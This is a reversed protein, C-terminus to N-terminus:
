RCEVNKFTLTFNFRTRGSALECPLGPVNGVVTNGSGSFTNINADIDMADDSGTFNIVNDSFDVKFIGSVNVADTGTGNIVNNFVSVNNVTQLRLAELDGSTITSNSITVDGSNVVYIGRRAGTVTMDSIRVDSVSTTVLISALGGTITFGTYNTNITSNIANVAANTQNLTGETGPLTFLATQGSTAGTFKLSAGGGAITQGVRANAQTSIDITGATGDLVVLSNEGAATIAAVAGGATNADITVIQNVTNGDYQVAESIVPKDVKGSVVDVDRIVFDTMRRELLSLRRKSSDNRKKGLAIRFFSDVPIKLRVTAFAHTGRVDDSQLEGGVTFRSGYGLFPLDRWNMEVRGRPGSIEEFGNAKFRFWSGYVAFESNAKLPFHRGIEFDWGPLAREQSLGQSNINLSTGSQVVTASGSGAIDKQTSEPIYYNARFDWVTSLAELGLMGQLFTNGNGTRRLDLFLSGGFIWGSDAIRRYGLGINGEKSGFDDFTGRIDSFLLTRKGEALPIFLRPEGLIRRTGVKSELEIQSSWKKFGSSKFYSKQFPSEELGTNESSAHEEAEFYGSNNYEHTAYIPSEFPSRSKRIRRKRSRKKKYPRKRFYRKRDIREEQGLDEEPM